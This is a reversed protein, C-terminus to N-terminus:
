LTHAALTTFPADASLRKQPMCRRVAILAFANGIAAIIRRLLQFHAEM